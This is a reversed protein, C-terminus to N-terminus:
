PRAPLAATLFCVSVLLFGPVAGVGMGGIYGYAFASGVSMRKIQYAVLGNTM